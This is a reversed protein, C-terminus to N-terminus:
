RFKLQHLRYEKVNLNCGKPAITKFYSARKSIAEYERLEPAFDDIRHKESLGQL